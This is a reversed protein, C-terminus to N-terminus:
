TSVTQATKIAPQPDLEFEELESLGAGLGPSIEPEPQV